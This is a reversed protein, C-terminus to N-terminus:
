KNVKEEKIVPISIFELQSIIERQLEILRVLQSNIEILQDKVKTGM